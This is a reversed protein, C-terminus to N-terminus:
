IYHMSRAADTMMVVFYNYGSIIDSGWDKVMDDFNDYVADTYARDATRVIYIM